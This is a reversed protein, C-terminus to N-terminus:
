ALSRVQPQIEAVISTRDSDSGYKVCSQIIRSATPSAAVNTMHGKILRLIQGVLQQRTEKPTDQRRLQEWLSIAEQSLASFM